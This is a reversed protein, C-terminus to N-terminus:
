KGSARNPCHCELLSGRMRGDGASRRITGPTLPEVVLDLTLYRSQAQALGALLKIVSFVGGLAVLIQWRDVARGKVSEYWGTPGPESIRSLMVSVPEGNLTGTANFREIRV